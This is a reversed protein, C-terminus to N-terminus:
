RNRIRPDFFAYALDTMLNVFITAAAAVIVIGQVLAYDRAFAAQVILQGIGPWNFLTETVVAGNLLLVFQLAGVSAIAVFSNRLAHVGVVRRESLGKARAVTIYHSDLSDRMSSQTIRLLAATSFWGLTFAPLVLSAPGNFNSAPLVGLIEAFLLIVLLGVLFPPVSQGALAVTRGFRDVLGGPKRSALMGITVGVVLAFAIACVALIFTNYLSEGILKTSPENFRLSFGLDGHLLQNLFRLYQVPLPDSLGLKDEMADIQGQTAEPGVLMPVPNGTARSLLFILVSVGLLSALAEVLRKVVYKM